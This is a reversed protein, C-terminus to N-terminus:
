LIPIELEYISKDVQKILWSTGHYYWSTGHYHSEYKKQDITKYATVAQQHDEKNSFM